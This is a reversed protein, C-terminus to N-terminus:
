TYWQWTLVARMQRELDKTQHIQNEIEWETRIKKQATEFMCIKSWSSLSIILGIFITRQVTELFFFM